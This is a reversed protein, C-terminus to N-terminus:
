HCAPDTGMKHSGWRHVRPRDGDPDPLAREAYYPNLSVYNIGLEEGPAAASNDITLKIEPTKATFVIHHLNIRAVGDNVAYRGKIREDVHVWSLSSDIEAGDSMTAAVRFRRPAIRNAKVDKVDFVAFQLCYKRGLVLGKLTQSISAADGEGRVLVAFTDGVGGNGGWRNQSRTAFSDHSDVRVVGKTRWPVLTGRFDGNLVHDPRYRFGYTESLMNTNGEVVYHRMLAFSWRHLEEDAYYSGWYGILGLDRFLPDNAAYNMQMDLAYKYDVEPHHVISLIPVQNFNGFVLGLSGMASPMMKRYTEFTTGVANRIYSREEDETERTAIYHERVLKGRGGAVNMCASLFDFNVASQTAKGYAWTYIPRAPRKELDYTWFGNAYADIATVDAYNQEDCAVGYMSANTMGRCNLLKEIMMKAEGGTLNMNQAWKFGRRCFEELRDKPVDGGLQTTVAPLVYRENFDWDYPPNEKVHSNVGPCYNLIEAIERVVVNGDEVGVVELEHEGASLLRFTEHRPTDCWIVDRGDIRLYPPRGAVATPPCPAARGVAAYAWGDRSMAFVFRNTVGAVLKASLLEACLNNLRRGAVPLVPTEGTRPPMPVRRGVVRFIYRRAAMTKGTATERVGVTVVGNTAGQPLPVKMDDRLLPVSACGEMGDVSAFVEYEGDPKELAGFFRFTMHPDDAPIKALLPPLPVLRPRNECSVMKSPGSKTRALEDLAELRIDAFDLEGKQNTVHVMVMYGDDAAFCNFEKSVRRWEEATNKPLSLIGETSKWLGSNVLMVGTHSGSSFGKTRVKMSIRYRGGKVLDLGFQKLRVDPVKEAHVSIYPLGAPGGSPHWKFCDKSRANANWFPPFDAQDAELTGNVLLNEGPKVAAFTAM